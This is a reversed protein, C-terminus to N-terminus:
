HNGIEDVAKKVTENLRRMYAFLRDKDPQRYLTSNNNYVIENINVGIRNVENILSKIGVRIEPYDNPQQTILLRFYDSETMGAEKAKKNFAKADEDSLRFHKVIEKAM